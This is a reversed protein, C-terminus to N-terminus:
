PMPGDVVITQGSVGSSSGSLLWACVEAVESPDILRNFASSAAFEALVQSQQKGQRDAVKQALQSLMPSDVNGPCVTNARGGLPALESAFSEVFGRLGFKTAVYVSGGAEGKLGATSSIFVSAFPRSTTRMASEIVAGFHFAGQLNVGMLKDYQEWDTADIPGTFNVGAAYVFATLPGTQEITSVLSQVSALDTVDVERCSVDSITPVVIDAAVVSEFKGKLADVCARGITGGAGVVLASM